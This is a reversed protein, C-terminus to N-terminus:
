DNTSPMTFYPAYERGWAEAEEKTRHINGMYWMGVDKIWTGCFSEETVKGGGKKDPEWMYFHEGEGCRGDPRCYDDTCHEKPIFKWRKLMSEQRKQEALGSDLGIHVKQVNRDEKKSPDLPKLLVKNALDNIEEYQAKSMGYEKFESEPVWASNNEVQYKHLWIRQEMFYLGNDVNNFVNYSFEEESWVVKSGKPIIPSNEICYYVKENM